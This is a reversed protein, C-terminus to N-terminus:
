RSSWKAWVRAIGTVHLAKATHEDLDWRRGVVYPGRDDVTAVVRHHHRLFTVKTGCPLKRAAVGYRARFGCATALGDDRYWSAVNRTFGPHRHLATNQVAPKAAKSTLAALAQSGTLLLGALALAPLLARFRKNLRRQLGPKTRM